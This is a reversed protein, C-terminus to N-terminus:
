KFLSGTGSSCLFSLGAHFTVFEWCARNREAEQVSVFEYEMVQRSILSNSWDVVLGNRKNKNKKEIVVWSDGNPSFFFFCRAEESASQLLNTTGSLLCDCFSRDLYVGHHCLHYM